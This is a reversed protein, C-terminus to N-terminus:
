NPEDAVRYEPEISKGMLVADRTGKGWAVKEGPFMEVIPFVNPKFEATVNLGMFVVGVAHFCPSSPSDAEPGRAIFLPAM